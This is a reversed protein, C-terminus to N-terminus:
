NYIDHIPNIKEGKKAELLNRKMKDMLEEIKPTIPNNDIFKQLGKIMQEIARTNTYSM